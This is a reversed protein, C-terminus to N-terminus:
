GKKIKELIKLNEEFIKAIKLQETVTGNFLNEYKFEQIEKDKNLEECVLIHQQTEKEKGCADCELTDYKGKLNVKIQTMRCRLKFILQADEKKMKENNPQLYKRMLIANHEIHDVNSHSKNKNEMIEFTKMNMRQKVLNVWVTKKMTKIEDMSLNSIGLVQLDQQVTTVWDRKTKHEMQSKFVRHVISKPDENLIYHLFRLRKERVIERFPICGLELYLM